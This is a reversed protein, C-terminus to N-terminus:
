KQGCRCHGTYHDILHLDGCEEKPTCGGKADREKLVQSYTVEHGYVHVRKQYEGWCRECAPVTEGKRPYPSTFPGRIYLREM